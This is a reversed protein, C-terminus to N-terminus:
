LQPSSTLPHSGLVDRLEQEGDRVQSAAPGLASQDRLGGRDLLSMRHQTSNVLSVGLDRWSFSRVKTERGGVAATVWLSCSGSAVM